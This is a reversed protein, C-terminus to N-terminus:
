IGIYRTYYSVSFSSLGPTLNACSVSIVNVGGVAGPEPEIHFTAMNSTSEVYAIINGNISSTITKNGFELNITVVEGAVISYSSIDIQEGTTINTVIVDQMPGNLIIQPYALWTGTYNITVGYSGSLAGFIINNNGFTIPFILDIDGSGMAISHNMLTPDYFTPDPAVFRLATTFGFEDWRNQERATFEPGQEVIVNLIRKAGNPLIKQLRGLAFTNLSQRNPRIYNLLNARKNWYDERDCGNTRIMLQVIRPQLRYDYITKGHQLPGQQDIFDIGPLSFGSESILFRYHDDFKYVKGDPAIYQTFEILKPRM